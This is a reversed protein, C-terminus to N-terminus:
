GNRRGKQSEVLKSVEQLIRVATETDGTQIAATM